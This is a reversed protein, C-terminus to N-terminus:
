FYTREPVSEPASFPYASHVANIKAISKTCIGLRADPPMLTRTHFNRCGINWQM